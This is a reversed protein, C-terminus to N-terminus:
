AINKSDRGVCVPFKEQFTQCLEERTLRADIHKQEEAWDGRRDTDVDESVNDPGVLGAWLNLKVRFM